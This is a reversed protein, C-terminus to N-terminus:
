RKKELELLREKRWLGASFGGLTGDTRLVRHCPVVLILRNKGLASGVARVASPRSIKEALERYSLTKGPPIAAAGKWVSNQFPTGSLRFQVPLPTVNGQFFDTLWDHFPHSPSLAPASSARAFELRILTEGEWEGELVGLPSPFSFLSM